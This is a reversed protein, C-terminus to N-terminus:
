DFEPVALITHRRPPGGKFAKAFRVHLTGYTGWRPSYPNSHLDTLGLM